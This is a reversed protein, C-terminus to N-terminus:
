AHDPIVSRLRTKNNAVNEPFMDDGDEIVEVRFLFM